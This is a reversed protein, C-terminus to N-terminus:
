QIKRKKHKPTQVMAFRSMLAHIAPMITAVRKADESLEVLKRFTGLPVSQGAAVADHMVVLPQAVQEIYGDVTRFFTWLDLWEQETMPGICAFRGRWLEAEDDTPQFQINIAPQM